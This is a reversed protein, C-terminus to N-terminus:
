KQPITDDEGFWKYSIKKMTGDRYLEKMAADIKRQLTKDSKRMGVAFDEPEFSGDTVQYDDRNAQHDIYYNAYVRDILLGQIRNANLDIFADNFTSYLVPSGNKIYNKLLKPESELSSYGSSGTQVGLVKGQMGAFSNIQDKKMTVLIQKNLLYPSSFRVVKKRQPTITYGNWILDITHNRLETANMSWDITQFDVKINYKKFVARALDIDFGELKGSKARFGMPVFSDDLGVIVTKRRQITSWSDAKTDARSCGTLSIASFLVLVALLTGLIKKRM